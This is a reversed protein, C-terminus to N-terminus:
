SAAVLDLLAGVGDRLLQEQTLVVEGCGRDRSQGGPAVELGGVPTRVIASGPGAYLLALLPLRDSFPM